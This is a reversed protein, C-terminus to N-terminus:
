CPPSAFFFLRLTAFADRERLRFLSTTDDAVDIALAHLMLLSLMSLLRRFRIPTIHCRRLQYFIALM